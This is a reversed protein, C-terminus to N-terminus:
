TGAPNSTDDTRTVATSSRVIAVPTDLGSSSGAAKRDEREPSSVDARLERRFFRAPEM